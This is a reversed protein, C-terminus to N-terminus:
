KDVVNEAADGAIWGGATWELRHTLALTDLFRGDHSVVVLAGPWSGLMAELAEVSSLDLHNTPEDLMLLKPSPERLVALLLAGRMREGGSLEGSPRLIRDPGLGALALMQRLRGADHTSKLQDLLSRAPDLMALHQDLLVGPLGHVSGSLPAIEGAITRLLTSKGCGNPGSMAIRAAGQVRWDLAQPPGHRAVLADFALATQGPPIDVDLQPFAPQRHLADFTAFADAVDDQLAQRARAHRELRAGDTQEARQPLANLVIKPMGGDAKARAGRASRRAARAAQERMKQEGQRREVKARELKAGAAALEADRQEAVLSWGGGYRRLGGAHVELTREVHELLDRDHSILLLGRGSQRWARMQDLLFARNGLDLHNGPEDLVLLDADSCFAGILALLTHQGGSLAQPELDADLGAGDLMAKWRAELDWRDGILDFDEDRAEGDALRHLAALPADLGAVEALSRASTAGTQQAVYRIRGPREIRGAAPPLDGALVRGLTSKGSGNHGILGVTEAQFPEHLNTFLIRGDPLIIDVGHLAAFYPHAM